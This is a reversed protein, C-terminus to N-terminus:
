SSLLRRLAAAIQEVSDDAAAFDWPHRWFGHPMGLVRHAGVRVGSEALRAAFAEGEDRLIDHEATLVYTPPMRSVDAALMPAVEPDARTAADPAYAHWYWRMEEARLLIQDETRYSPYAGTPDLPPYVLFQVAFAGPDRVSLGAILNAGSSDGIGAVLATDVAHDGARRCAWALARQVDDLPAPFPHEPALRYGVSLVAWGTRLALERAFRDHTDLDGLVWGGGHAFLLLPADPRPRYLRCGVGDADVDRVHGVDPRPEALAAVAMSRRFADLDVGPDSVAPGPDAEAAEIAARAQPHLVM